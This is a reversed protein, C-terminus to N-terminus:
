EQRSAPFAPCDPEHGECPVTLRCWPCMSETGLEGAKLLARLRRVEAILKPGAAWAEGESYEFHQEIAALEAETM